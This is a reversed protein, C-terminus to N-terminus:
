AHQLVVVKAHVIAVAAEHGAPVVFMPVRTVHEGLGHTVPAHQVDAPTHVEPSAVAQKAAAPPTVNM